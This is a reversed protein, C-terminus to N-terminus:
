RAVGSSNLSTPAPSSAIKRRTLFQHLGELDDTNILDVGAELLTGWVLPEDPTAWFRLKKGQRHAEEALAQLRAFEEAPMPGHGRWDFNKKFHDSIVPMQEPDCGRGLDALRGDVGVVCATDNLIQQIARNGSIFVRLYPNNCFQPFGLLQERLLAFTSEADTKIDIMLYVVGAYNPYVRGGNQQLRRHLPELYLRRLTRRASLQPFLHGTYLEGGVLHIDAEICTFGHTLAEFLPRHHQYDHHAHANPLVEVQSICATAWCCLLCLFAAPFSSPLLPHACAPVFGARYGKLLNSVM